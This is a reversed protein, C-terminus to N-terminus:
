VSRLIWYVTLYTITIGFTMIILSKKSESLFYITAILIVINKYINLFMHLM